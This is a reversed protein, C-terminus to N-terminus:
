KIQTVEAAQDPVLRVRYTADGCQLVYAQEDPRSAAEAPEASVPETCTYGQSRVQAAIVTADISDQSHARGAATACVGCILALLTREVSM